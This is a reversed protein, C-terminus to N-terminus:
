SIVECRIITFEWYRAWSNNKLVAGNENFGFLGDRNTAVDM